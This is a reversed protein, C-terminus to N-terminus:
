SNAFQDLPFKSHDDSPIDLELCRQHGNTGHIDGRIQLIGMDKDAGDSCWPLFLLRQLHKLFVTLMKLVIERPADNEFVSRVKVKLKILRNLAAAPNEAKEILDLWRKGRIFRTFRLRSFVLIM